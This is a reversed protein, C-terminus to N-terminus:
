TEPWPWRKKHAEYLAIVEQSSSDYLGDAQLPGQHKFLETAAEISISTIGLDLMGQHKSFAKAIELEKGVNGYNLKDIDMIVLHGKYSALIEAAKNSLCPGDANSHNFILGKGNHRVLIEAFDEPMTSIDMVKVPGDHQALVKAVETTCEYGDKLIATGDDQIEAIDGINMM